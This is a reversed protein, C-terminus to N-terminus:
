KKLASLERKILKSLRSELDGLPDDVPPQNFARQLQDIIESNMSRGNKEAASLLKVHLDRPLRLATKIYDDQKM